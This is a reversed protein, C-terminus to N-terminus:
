LDPGRLCSKVGAAEHPGLRPVPCSLILPLRLERGCVSGSNSARLFVNTFGDSREKPKSIVDLQSDSFTLRRDKMQEAAARLKEEGTIGPSGRIQTENGRAPIEAEKFTIVKHRETNQQKM